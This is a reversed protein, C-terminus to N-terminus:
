FQQRFMCPSISWFKGMKESSFLQVKLIISCLMSLYRLALFLALSTNERIGLSTKQIRFASAM